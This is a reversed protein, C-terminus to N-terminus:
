INLDDYNQLHSKKIHLMCTKLNFPQFTLYFGYLFTENHDEFLFIHKNCHLNEQSSFAGTPSFLEFASFLHLMHFICM